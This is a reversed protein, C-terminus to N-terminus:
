KGKGQFEGNLNWDYDEFRLDFEELLLADQIRADDVYRALYKQLSGGAAEFETSYWKFISSVFAIRRELDFRNRTPDNIFGTAARQLQDDLSDPTYANSSLRPCSLSACVIAFHIRPDGIGIIKKRELDFLNIKEGSVIFKKRKFFKYRGFLSRPSLNDLIGQIALANYANIYFALLDDQSKLSSPEVTGVHQIFAPFRPDAAFGDYNVFGDRVNMLLLEDFEAYDPTAAIAAGCLTIAAGALLASLGIKRFLTVTKSTRIPGSLANSRHFRYKNGDSHSSVSGHLM